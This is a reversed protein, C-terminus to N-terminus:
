PLPVSLVVPLHDSLDPEYRPVETDLPPIRVEAGSLAGGLAATTVMHDLMVGSPLFSVAGSTALAETRFDYATADLFPGLVARGADNDLVDNFDGLLLVGAGIEPGTAARLWGDLIQVSETRRAYDSDDRGAKLHVGVLTLELSGGRNGSVTVHAAIAPRPFAGPDDGFLLTVDDIQILSTRYIIGLKQYTGDAYVHTSLVGEHDPLRAMVEAFADADAIEEVVVLDLELSAILDTLFAPTRTAKPFYEINWTAIDLTDPSGVPPVIDDHPAPWADPPAAAADAAGPEPPTADGREDCGALAVLAAVALALASRRRLPAPSRKSDM